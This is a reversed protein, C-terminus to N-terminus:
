WLIGIINENLSDNENSFPVDLISIGNETSIYVKGEQNNFTIDYVIDSLLSSNSVLFGNGDPWLDANNKIIKVGNQRSTIWANNQSDVRIKDGKSFPINTFFNVKTDIKDM